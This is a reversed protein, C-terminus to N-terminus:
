AIFHEAYVQNLMILYMHKYTSYSKQAIANNTLMIALKYYHNYTLLM